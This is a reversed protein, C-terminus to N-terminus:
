RDGDLSVTFCDRGAAHRAFRDGGEAAAAAPSGRQFTACLEYHEEDLVRYEYPRGTLPDDPLTLRVPDATLTSLREPLGGANEVYRAIANRLLGLDQARRQDLRLERAVGPSEVLWLGALVALVVTLGFLLLLVDHRPRRM